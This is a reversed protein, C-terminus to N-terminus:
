AVGADKAAMNSLLNFAAGAAQYAKYDGSQMIQNKAFDQINLQNATTTEQQASRLLRNTVGSAGLGQVPVVSYTNSGTTNSTPNAAAYKDYIQAWKATEADSASKGLLQLYLDNVTSKVANIDPRDISQLNIKSSVAYPNISQPNIKNTVADAISVPDKSKNNNILNLAYNGLYTQDIASLQGNTAITGLDGLANPVKAVDLAMKQIAPANNVSDGLLSKLQGFTLTTPTKGNVIFGYDNKVLANVQAKASTISGSGGTNSALQQLTTSPLNIAPTNKKIAM